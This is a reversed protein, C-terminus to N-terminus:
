FGVSFNIVNLLPKGARYREYNNLILAANREHYDTTVGSSHPTIIVNAFDWLPSTKPLPEEVFVDLCAGAILKQNLASILANEDVVAGRAINILFASRKMARFAKEGILKTTGATSPVSLIVFDAVQLCEELQEPTFVKSVGPIPNGNTRVGVATLGLSVVRKAIEQGIAGLGIIAAVQGALPKTPWRHWIKNSQNHILAAFNWQMLIIAGVVYNAIHDAIIGRANTLIAGSLHEKVPALFDVGALTIHLWELANADRLPTPDFRQGIVVAADRIKLRFETDDAATEIRLEPFKSSLATRIIDAGPHYILIKKTFKNQALASDEM